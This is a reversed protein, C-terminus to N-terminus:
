YYPMVQRYRNKVTEELDNFIPYINSIQQCALYYAQKATECGLQFASNLRLKWKTQLNLATFWEQSYSPNSSIIQNDLIELWNNLIPQLDIIRTQETYTLNNWAQNVVKDITENVQVIALPLMSERSKNFLLQNQLEWFENINTVAKYKKTLQNTAKETALEIVRSYKKIEEENESQLKSYFEDAINVADTTALKETLQNALDDVSYAITWDVKSKDSQLWANEKATTLEIIALRLPNNFKKADIKYFRLRKDSEHLKQVPKEFEIGLDNFIKKLTDIREKNGSQEKIPKINLALQIRPESNIRNILEIVEPSEKCFEKDLSILEVIKLENYAWIKSFSSGRMGAIFCYEATTKNYIYAEHQKQTIAYNLLKAYNQHSTLWRRDKFHNLWFDVSYAPHKDIGPVKELLVISKKIRRQVDLTHEGKKVEKLEEETYKQVENYYIKAETELMEAKIEAMENDIKESMELQLETVNHGAEKLQYMLCKRLNAKEYNSISTKDTLLRSWKDDKLAEIQNIILEFAISQQQEDSINEIAFVNNLDVKNCLWEFIKQSNYGTPLSNDRIVTSLPCYVYHPITNDRIRFMMQHQSSTGLVGCFFSFKHTFYDKIKISVGSGCSPTFIVYEPKHKEIYLDPDVLFNKAFDEGVTNASIVVGRKGHKRLFEDIEHAFKKSDTAIGLKVNDQLWMNQLHSKTRPKVRFENDEIIGGDCFIINHPKVKQTNEIKVLQKSPDLKALFSVTKDTANGDLLFVRNAKKFIQELLEMARKQEYNNLTGGQLMADIVSEFEDIFIDCGDYIIGDKYASNICFSLNTEISSVLSVGKDTQAETNLHYIPVGHKFARQNTQLLLNNLYGIIKSGDKTSAIVTIMAETKGTALGSKTAIIANNQPIAPFTFQEQNVKITPTYKHVNQWIKFQEDAIIKPKQQTTISSFEDLSILKIQDCNELEDIDNATKDIQEWWAFKVDYGFDCVLKAVVEWRKIVNSNLVDGADPYIIVENTGTEQTARKLFDELQKPSAAFQGGAAGIVISNLRKSALYPKAGTGEVLAIAEAKGDPKFVALPNELSDGVMVPLCHNKSSLWRYRNGDEPNHLRIQFATIKGDYNRIPCLYGSGSVLLSNGKVGIGPLKKDLKFPLRQWQEVSRFECNRIEDESFGRNKLDALTSIDLKLYGLIQSYLKDREDVSLYTERKAKEEQKAALQRTVRLNEWERRKEESWEQSNDLKFTAAVYQRSYDAEKICKYGNIIEGKRTDALGMCLIIEDNSRCRGDTSDCIFCGKIPILRSM